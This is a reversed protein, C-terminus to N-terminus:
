PCDESSNTALCTPTLMASIRTGVPRPDGHKHTACLSSGGNDTHTNLDSLEIQSKAIGPTTAWWVGRDMPNELCSYRLPNGNGEAPFRGSGPISGPDRAHCASEEGESGGPFRLVTLHTGRPPVLIKGKPQVITEKSQM